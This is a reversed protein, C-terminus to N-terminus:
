NAEARPEAPAEEPGPIQLLHDLVLRGHREALEAQEQFRGASDLRGLERERAALQRSLVSQERFIRVSTWLAAELGEAQESLLVEANYAHGVHCRFRLFEPEDVQWLAGGCEPCSFFSRAGRHGGHVQREADEDITEPMDDIPDMAGEGSNTDVVQDQVVRVLLPAMASVPVVHDAGAVSAAARPMAAVEADRADQVVAVGGAARLAILGASGDSLGGTLIVGAARAGYYRAASRFLPDIAPRHGNERAGRVLRILSGPGLLMHHNPPAVYIHGPYFRDGDAPHAALVPGARSLIEPLVSRGEPPFHCVIFVSAPLSAPLGRVLETLAQVGGASAGIVIVDRRGM